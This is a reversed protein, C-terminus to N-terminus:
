KRRGKYFEVEVFGNNGTGYVSTVTLKVSDAEIDSLPMEEWVQGKYDTASGGSHEPLTM